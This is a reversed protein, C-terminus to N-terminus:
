KPLGKRKDRAERYANWFKEENKMNSPITLLNACEAKVIAEKLIRCDPLHVYGLLRGYKDRSQVDYEIRVWDGPKVLTKVSM